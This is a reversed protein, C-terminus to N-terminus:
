PTQPAPQKASDRLVASFVDIMKQLEAPTMDQPKPHHGIAKQTLAHRDPHAPLQEVKKWFAWYMAPRPAAAPAADLIYTKRGDIEVLSGPAPRPDTESDFSGAIEDAALAPAASGRRALRQMIERERELGEQVRDPNRVNRPAAIGAAAATRQIKRLKRTSADRETEFEALERNHFEGLAATDADQETDRTITSIIPHRIGGYIVKAARRHGGIAEHAAQLQEKTASMAPLLLRKVTFPNQLNLDSVTLLEPFDVHYYALVERGILGGTQKNYYALREGGITLIIGEQRVTVRKCHSALLYRANDPLKRLPNNEVGARWAEAPSSGQLMKGNQPDANFEEFTANLREGWQEMTYLFTAPDLTRRRARALKDQVREFDETREGFGTFGPENRQREQWIRILSEITKARPTTAHHVTLGIGQEKLGCDTERWHLSHKSDLEEIM